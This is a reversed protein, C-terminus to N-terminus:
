GSKKLLVNKEAIHDKCTINQASNDEKKRALILMSSISIVTLALLTLATYGSGIKAPLVEYLGVLGFIVFIAASLWKFIREPIRKCFVVGAIIGLGDAVLMAITAGVFVSIANQYQAALSITALQTKDGFEAIFFAIAVTAVVGFRSVREKEVKQKDGRITWLGFGIFSLSASLSIIDLPVITTLFQGLAVTIAFNAVIAIAVGLIVKYVNHRVAFSMALFQTKDGMEALVILVFSAVFAALSLEFL